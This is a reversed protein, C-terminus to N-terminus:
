NVSDFILLLASQVHSWNLQCYNPCLLVYICIKTTSCLLCTFRYQSVLYHERVTVLLLMPLYGIDYVCVDGSFCIILFPLGFCQSLAKSIWDMLHLRFIISFLFSHLCFVYATISFSFLSHIFFSSFACLPSFAKLNSIRLYMGLFHKRIIINGIHFTDTAQWPILMVVAGQYM